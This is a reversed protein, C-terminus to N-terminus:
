LRRRDKNKKIFVALAGCMLLAIWITYFGGLSSDKQPENDPPTKGNVKEPEKEKNPEEKDVLGVAEGVLKIIKCGTLPAIALTTIVIIAAIFKYKKIKDM